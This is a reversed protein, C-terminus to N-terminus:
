DNLRKALDPYNKKIWEIPPEQDWYEKPSPPPTYEKGSIEAVVKSFSDEEPKNLEYNSDSYKLASKVPSLYSNLFSNYLYDAHPTLYGGAEKKALEKARVEELWQNMIMGKESDKPYVYYDDEKEAHAAEEGLTVLNMLTPTRPVNVYKPDGEKGFVAPNYAMWRGSSRKNPLPPPYGRDDSDYEHKVGIGKSKLDEIRKGMKRNVENLLIPDEYNLDPDALPGRLWNPIMDM